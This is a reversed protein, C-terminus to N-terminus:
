FADPQYGIEPSDDSSANDDGGRKALWNFAGSSADVQDDHPAGPFDHLEDLYPKTWDGRVVWINGHRWQSALPGARVKKGRSVNRTYVSFGRLVRTALYQVAVKSQSGGEVELVIPVDRGDEEATQKILDEVADPPLRDREVDLVGYRGDLGEGLLVGTLHDPDPNENSVPTAAFDWFRVKRAMSCPPGDVLEVKNRDFITGGGLDSWDDCHRLKEAIQPPLQALQREYEETSIHPNDELTAQIFRRDGSSGNIFRERVWALGRGIPNTASSMRLPVSSSAPRRLRSFLFRYDDERFETLEDFAIYQYAASQYQFKDNSQELYGFELTAGSPFRWKKDQRNYVADTSALWEQSRSILGDAKKLKQFSTRLILGAYHAVDVWMLAGMLLAESKGGGAAGGYGVETEPALLFAWQKATPEHPIYPNERVRELLPRV